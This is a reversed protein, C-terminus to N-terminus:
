LLGREKKRKLTKLKREIKQREKLTNKIGIKKSELDLLRGEDIAAEARRKLKVLWKDAEKLDLEALYIKDEIELKGFRM